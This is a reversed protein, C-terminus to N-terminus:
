PAARRDLARVLVRSMAEAIGRDYNSLVAIQLDGEVELVASVGPGGGAIGYGVRALDPSSGPEREAPPPAGLVWAAWEPPLLRGGRLAADFAVLDAVTSQASGAPNGRAPLEYLNSRCVRGEGEERCIYGEAVNPVPVDRDFFGTDEMGAKAFVNETIYEAFPTQAAAEVVAGLVIYGGNSYESREGPEFDLPQAAILELYDRPERFLAKSTRGFEPGFMDGLGSTHEVLHRIRIRAAMEPNPFDPLHRAVTDDLSLRGEALLKAVAVKTFSKNISGVDFRTDMRNPVGWRRSALGRAGEALIEGGRAIAVAGSFLDRRALEDLWRDLAGALATPDGGAPPEFPPLDPRGGPPGAALQLGAIRDPAAPDFDFSFTAVGSRGQIELMVRGPGEVLIGGVDLGAHREAMRAAMGRWEEDSRRARLEPALHDRLYVWVEEADGGEIARMLGMATAEMVKMPPEAAPVAPAAVLAALILVQTVRTM